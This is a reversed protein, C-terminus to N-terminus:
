VAYEEGAVTIVLTNSAVSAIGTLFDAAALRLSTYLNYESNAAISETGAIQTGAASGATLGVYLSFTAASGTTNAIHIHRIVGYLNTGPNYINAASATLSLPGALKKITGPM